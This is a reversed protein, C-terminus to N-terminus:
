REIRNQKIVKSKSKEKDRAKKIKGKLESYEEKSFTLVTDCHPCKICVENKVYKKFAKAGLSLAGIGTGVPGGAVIYAADIAYWIGGDLDGLRKTGILSKHCKSCKM